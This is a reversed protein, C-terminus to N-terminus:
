GHLEGILCDYSTLSHQQSVLWPIEINDPGFVDRCQKISLRSGQELATLVYRGLASECDYNDALVLLDVMYRCDIDCLGDQMLQQWILTFDGDPILDDRLLSNRFANPKKALSHIVHRYDICRVRISGQAYLRPLTLTVEHGHFLALRDDYIHILLAAGVLRSPVTYLVRKVTITSSSSVKVHLDSFDNTRRNPLAQLHPKEQEFRTKCQRNIKAVILNIFTEYDALNSFDRHGRLMLQQDIKRKLHGHASEIAGNEHAVGKNNRTASVGYYKCLKAYRETLLTKESHNKFAASLSDTRHSVPVGGSRWFANQLGSSLSEFSEGGLTIQVYTWGSYVLRYHYIKHKFENGNLTINLKNMWTYDSIGMDGPTHHQLFIVEQEPGEQVRWRKVRRQLTRLHSADFQDPAKDALVDLLTIPQLEPNLKLLPVLHKEFLGNFPDKRTRYKRPQHQSQREGKEIRRASRESIGVKAASKVQSNNKRYSMYLKVQQQTISIEPM